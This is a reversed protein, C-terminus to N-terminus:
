LSTIILIIKIERLNESKVLFKNFLLLAVLALLKQRLLIVMLVITTETSVKITQKNVM